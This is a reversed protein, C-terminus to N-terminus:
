PLSKPAQGREGTIMAAAIAALHIVRINALDSSPASCVHDNRHREPCNVRPPTIKNNSASWRGPLSDAVVRGKRRKM